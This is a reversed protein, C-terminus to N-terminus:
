RIPLSLSVQHTTVTVGDLTLPGSPALLISPSALDASRALDPFNGGFLAPRGTGSTMRGRYQVHLAPFRLSLGWTPTWEVWREDQRRKTAQVNDWQDLSYSVQRMDLGLQIGAGDERGDVEIEQGVGFRVTANTFRFRNEVTKGGTPIVAGTQTEIPSAAEAWTNSWVPELIVDLGFTGTESVKGLGVGINYAYSHGPDRPINMIEYNPIKPHSMVNGTLVTGLRWGPAALPREYEMHLGWVNTRDVNHEVRPTPRQIRAVPDWFFDLYSVDHTMNVRNHVVVMELTRDDAFEKVAGLRLDIVDGYQRINASNAYLFEVGDVANLGAWRLGAGVSLKADAFNRGATAFAYRNDRPTEPFTVPDPLPAISLDGPRTFDVLPGPFTQLRLSPDVEQFALAVGGFWHERRGMAGIPFTRGGGEGESFGYFTPSGFVRTGGLRAGKAPNVFPDILSDPVAISVGAMGATQSPLIDFQDGQALPVTKISIVQGWAPDAVSLLLLLSLPLARVARWPPASPPVPM